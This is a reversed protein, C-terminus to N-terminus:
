RNEKFIISEKNKHKILPLMSTGFGAVVSVGSLIMSDLLTFSAVFAGCFNIACPVIVSSSTLKMNKEYDKALIFMEELHKLTGDMLIVEATDVAISSAGRLSVSVDAQKLAISDNIGDGIYCVKKGQQQLVKILKAKQEPLVEAYYHDIGLQETLYRTPEKQDGSIVSISMKHRHLADIVSQAEPRISVKFEIAGIVHNDLALLVISRGETHCRQQAQQISESIICHEMEMFRQSGVRLIQGNFSVIIGYGIRYESDDFTPFELNKKQAEALIAKAIPHTQKEEAAAAYRLIVDEDYNVECHIKGVRPQELTLTGTKDFVVCDIENLTELTQGVKFLLGKQAALNLFNLVSSSTVLTLRYRFHSNLIIIAGSAGLFPFAVTSLLFAPLVTKDTLNESWSQRGTKANVTQNLVEGIQAATTDKGTKDVCIELKGALVITMAFVSDSVTKEIAQSEGTLLHQDVTAIGNQITGDVSIKEGARIRIIDGQKVTEFAIEIEIDNVVIWVTKPQQKFIDIISNSSNNKLKLMLKRNLLYLILYINCMLYKGMLLLLTNLLAVLTDVNLKRKKLSQYSDRYVDKLIYLAVPLNLVLFAPSVSTSLLTVVSFSSLFILGKRNVEQEEPSIKTKGGSIDALQKERCRSLMVKKESIRISNKPKLKNKKRFGIYSAAALGGILLGTIIM